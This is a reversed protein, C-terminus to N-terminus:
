LGSLNFGGGFSWSAGVTFLRARHAGNKGSVTQVWVAAIETSRTIPVTVGAGANFFNGVIYRDHHEWDAALEPALPGKNRVQWTLIGRVGVRPLLHVGGEVGILSRVASHGNKPPAMGLAYRVHLHTRPFLRDTPLGVSAGVQLEPRGRGPVAEGRTEYAHSPVTGGAFPVVVVPGAMFLRRLEVHFDQVAGHYQGNDLPGPTTPINAVEYSPPGTYKSAIFPVGLTLGIEDTLGYDLELAIAKTHTAGNTNPQGKLNYHGLTYYNQYQLSLSGEGRAPVWAQAAAPIPAALTFALVAIACVWRQYRDRLTTTRM